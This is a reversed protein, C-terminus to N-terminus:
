FPEIAFLLLLMECLVHTLDLAELTGVVEAMLGFHPIFCLLLETHALFLCTVRKNM